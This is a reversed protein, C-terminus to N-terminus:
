PRCLKRARALLAAADPTDRVGTRLAQVDRGADSLSPALTDIYCRMADASVNEFETTVAACQALEALAAADDFPACLHREAFAAAPAHPDPDLVTVRYGMTQAAVTFMRGLQGGGLIGLMAPPLIARPTTNMINPSLSFATQFCRAFFVM